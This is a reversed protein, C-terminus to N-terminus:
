FLLDLFEKHRSSRSCSSPVQIVLVHRPDRLSSCAILCSLQEYDILRAFNQIIPLKFYRLQDAKRIVM